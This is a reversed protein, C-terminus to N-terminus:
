FGRNHEISPNAFTFLIEDLSMGKSCKEIKIDYSTNPLTINVTM